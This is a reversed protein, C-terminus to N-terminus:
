NANREAEIELLEDIQLESDFTEFDRLKVGFAHAATATWNPWPSYVTHRSAVPNTPLWMQSVVLATLCVLAPAWLSARRPRDVQFVLRQARVKLESQTRGLMLAGGPTGGRSEVLRLLTRLYAATSQSDGSAADDCVFERVLSSRRGSVWVLPHFWFLVQALKQVFLQMPHQTKLHTLEHRLVHELEGADGEVLTRPLFVLPQHFQYCFPGLEQPSEKFCLQKDHPSVLDAPIQRKLSDQLEASYEPCKAIFNRVQFFQIMWRALMVAAGGLWIVLLCRGLIIESNAVALLKKPGLSSWPHIWEFRPFLVAAGLLLLLSVFCASWIRTKSVACTTWREMGWAIGFVITSQVMLSVLVQFWQLGNM